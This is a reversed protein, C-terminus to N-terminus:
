KYIHHIAFRFAGILLHILLATFTVCTCVFAVIAWGWYDPYFKAVGVAGYFSLITCIVLFLIEWISCPIYKMENEGLFLIM